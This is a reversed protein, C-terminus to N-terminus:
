RRRCVRRQVDDGGGHRPEGAGGLLDVGMVMAGIPCNFHAEAPAYFVGQEAQRWFAGASPVVADTTELGASREDVFTLAIPPLELELLTAIRGATETYTV